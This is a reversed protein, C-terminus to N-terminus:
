GPRQSYWLKGEPLCLQQSRPPHRPAGLARDDRRPEKGFARAVGVSLFAVSHAGTTRCDFSPARAEHHLGPFCARAVDKYLGAAILEQPTTEFLRAFPCGGLAPDNEHALVIPLRAARAAKVQELLREEDRSWTSENLYLLMHTAGDADEATSVTIDAFTNALENALEEAGANVQSVRVVVKKAFTLSQIRAENPICLDLSDM